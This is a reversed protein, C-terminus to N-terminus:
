SRPLCDVPVQLRQGPQLDASELGNAEQLRFVVERTDQEPDGYKRALTWLTDGYQVQVLVPRRPASPRASRAAVPWLLALLLSGVLCICRRWRLHRRRM